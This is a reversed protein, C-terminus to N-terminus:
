DDSIFTIADEPCNGAAVRAEKELEPPLLAVKVVAHGEDDEDFVSPALVYCRGHGECADGDHVVKLKGGGAM